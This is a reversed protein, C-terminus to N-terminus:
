LTRGVAASILSAKWDADASHCKCKIMNILKLNIFEEKSSWGVAKNDQTSLAYEKM